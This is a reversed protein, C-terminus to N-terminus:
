VHHNGGKQSLAVQLLKLYRNPGYPFATIADYSLYSKLIRDLLKPDLQKILEVARAKFETNSAKEQAYQCDLHLVLYVKGRDCAFNLPYFRCVFPRMERIACKRSKCYPCRPKLKTVDVEEGELFPNIFFCDRNIKLLSIGKEYLQDVEELLLWIYGMCDDYNCQTCVESIGDTLQDLAQYFEQLTIIM